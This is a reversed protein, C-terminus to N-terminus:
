SSFVLGAAIDASVHENWRRAAFVLFTM